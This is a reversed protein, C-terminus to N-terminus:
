FLSIEYMDHKFIRWFYVTQVVCIRYFVNFEARKLAVSDTSTVVIRPRIKCYFFAVTLLFVGQFLELESNNKTRNSTTEVGGQFGNTGKFALPM